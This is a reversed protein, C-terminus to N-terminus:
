DRHVKDERTDSDSKPREARIQKAEDWGSENQKTRSHEAKSQGPINRKAKNQCRLLSESAKSIAYLRNRLHGKRSEEGCSTRQLSIDAAESDVM